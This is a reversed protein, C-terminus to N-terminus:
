VYVFWLFGDLDRVPVGLAPGFLVFFRGACPCGGMLLCVLAISAEYARETIAATAATADVPFVSGCSRALAATAARSGTMM